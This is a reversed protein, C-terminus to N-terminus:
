NITVKRNPNADAITGRPSTVAGINTARLTTQFMPQTFTATIAALVYFDSAFSARATVDGTALASSQM